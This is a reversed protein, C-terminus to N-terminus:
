TNSQIKNLINIFIEDGCMKDTYLSPHFQLGYIEENKHKIIEIGDKSKALPTLTNPMEKICWRHAEFVKFNPVDKFIKDQKLIKITVTGKKKENLLILTAGFAHGILEFGLCIGIIPIELSKILNIEKKYKDENGLVPYSSSGTLIAIDYNSIESLNIENFKINIIEHQKLLAQLEKLHKTENNILLIKM